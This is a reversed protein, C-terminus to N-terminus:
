EVWAYDRQYVEGTNDDTFTVLCNVSISDANNQRIVYLVETARCNVTLGLTSFYTEDCYSLQENIWRLVYQDRETENDPFKRFAHKVCDRHQKSLMM